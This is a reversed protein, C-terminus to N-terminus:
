SGRKSRQKRLGLAGIAGALLLASAPLPVVPPPPPPPLTAKGTLDLVALFINDDNSANFSDAYNIATFTM